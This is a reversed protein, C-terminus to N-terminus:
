GVVSLRGLWGEGLWGVVGGLWGVLVFGFGGVRCGSIVFSGSLRPQNLVTSAYPPSRPFSSLLFFLLSPFFPISPHLSLPISPYLPHTNTHPHSPLPPSSLPPSLLPTSLLPSYPLTLSLLPSYHLTLSLLPSYPLTLSPLTLSLLPLLTYTFLSLGPFVPPIRHSPATILPCGRYLFLHPNSATHTHM